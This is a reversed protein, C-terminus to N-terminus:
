LDSRFANKKEKKEFAQITEQLIKKFAVSFFDDKTVIERGMAAIEHFVKDDMQLDIEVSETERLDLVQIQGLAKGTKKSYIEAKGKPKIKVRM